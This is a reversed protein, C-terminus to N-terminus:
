SNERQTKSWRQLVMQSAPREGASRGWQLEVPLWMWNWCYIIKIWRLTTIGTTRKWWTCSFQIYEGCSPNLLMPLLPHTKSQSVTFNIGYVGRLGVSLEGHAYAEEFGFYIVYWLPSSSFFFGTKREKRYANRRTRREEAGRGERNKLFFSKQM